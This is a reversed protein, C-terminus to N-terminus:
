AARRLQSAETTVPKGIIRSLARSEQVYQARENETLAKDLDGLSPACHEQVWAMGLRRFLQPIRVITRRIRKMGVPIQFRYGVLVIEEDAPKTDTLQTIQASLEALRAVDPNVAPKWAAVKNLTDAYEDVLKRLSPSLKPTIM